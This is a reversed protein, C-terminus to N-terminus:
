IVPAPRAARSRVMLYGGRRLWVRNEGCYTPWLRRHAAPNAIVRSWGGIWIDQDVLEILYQDLASRRMQLTSMAEAPLGGPLLKSGTIVSLEM